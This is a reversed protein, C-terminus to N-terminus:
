APLAPVLARHVRDRDPPRETPHGSPHRRILCGPRDAGDHGQGPRRRRGPYQPLPSGTIIPEGGVGARPRAPVRPRGTDLGRSVSAAPRRPRRPRRHRPRRDDLGGLGVRRCVSGRLGVAAVSARPSASGAPSSGGGSLGGGFVIALAAAGVIVVAAATLLWRSGMGGGGSPPPAPARRATGPRVPTRPPRKATM